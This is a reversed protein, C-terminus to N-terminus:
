KVVLRIFQAYVPKFYFTSVTGIVVSSFSFDDVKLFNQGDLSYEITFSKLSSGPLQRIDCAYFTEMTSTKIGVYQGIANNGSPTWGNSGQASILVSANNLGWSSYFVNTQNSSIIPVLNLKSDVGVTFVSKSKQQDSPEDGFFDMDISNWTLKKIAAVCSGKNLTYGNECQLCNGYARQNKCGPMNSMCLGNKPFFYPMCVSCLGNTYVQCQPDRLQCKGFPNLFYLRDCNICIGSKDFNSCYKDAYQCRGNSDVFYGKICQLCQTRGNNYSACYQDQM